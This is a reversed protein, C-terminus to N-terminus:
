PAVQCPGSVHLRCERFFAHTTAVLARGEAISGWGPVNSFKGPESRKYRRFYEAIDTRDAATLEYLPRDDRGLPSLVVKSDIGKEDEMFLLGVIVGRVIDGGPLPPGLVLADFPDGDHSITQPVFGYNVPYGGLDTPMIRDIARANSRMDFEWKRRDGRSIEVYASVTGDKGIPPTDRWIHHPHAKAADVSTSLQRVAAEPLVNLPPQDSQAALGCSLAVAAVLHRIRV